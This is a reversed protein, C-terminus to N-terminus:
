YLFKLSFFYKGKTRKSNLKWVDENEAIHPAYLLYMYFLWHFADCKGYSFVFNVM